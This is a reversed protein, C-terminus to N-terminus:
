NKKFITIILLALENQTLAKGDYRGIEKGDRLFVLTPISTISFTRALDLFHDRNIYIFTLDPMTAAISNLLPTMRNCPGCWDAYFKLVVDGVASFQNLLNTSSLTKKEHGEFGQRLLTHEHLYVVNNKITPNKQAWVALILVCSLSLFSLTTIIKKM